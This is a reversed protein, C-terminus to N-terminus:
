FSCTRIPGAKKRHKRHSHSEQLPIQQKQHLQSRRKLPLPNIKAAQAPLAWNRKWPRPNTVQLSAEYKPVASCFDGGAAYQDGWLELAQTYRQRVTKGSSDILNPVM